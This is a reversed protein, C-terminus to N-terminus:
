NPQINANYNLERNQVTKWVFFGVAFGAVAVGIAVVVSMMAYYAPGYRQNFRVGNGPTADTPSSTPAAVPEAMPTATPPQVAYVPVCQHDVCTYKLINGTPQLCHDSELNYACLGYCNHPLMAQFQDCTANPCALDFMYTIGWLEVCPSQFWTLLLSRCEDSCVDSGNIRCKPLIVELAYDVHATLNFYCSTPIPTNLAVDWLGATGCFATERNDRYRDATFSGCANSPLRPYHMLFSFCVEGEPPTSSSSTDYECATFIKDKPKIKDFPTNPSFTYNTTIFDLDEGVVETTVNNSLETWIRRGLSHMFLFSGFVNIGNSELTLNTCAAPCVGSTTANPLGAPLVLSRSEIRGTMLVGASVQVSENATITLNFGSNDLLGSTLAPNKYYIKIMYYKTNSVPMGVFHPLCFETDTPGWAYTIRDCVSGAQPCAGDTTNQYGTCEQLLIHQVNAARDIDPEIKVIYSNTENADGLFMSTDITIQQCAYATSNQPVELNSVKLPVVFSDAYSNVPTCFGPKNPNDPLGPHSIDTTRVPTSGETWVCLPDGLEEGNTRGDGDSDLQCLDTTWTYGAAAFDLGFQNRPGGGEPM